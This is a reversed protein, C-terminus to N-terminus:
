KIAKAVFFTRLDNEESPTFDLDKYIGLIEFGCKKLLSTVTAEGCSAMFFPKASIVSFRRAM